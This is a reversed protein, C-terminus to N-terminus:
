IYVHTRSDLTASSTDYSITVSASNGNIDFTGAATNTGMSTLSNGINLADLLDRLNQLQDNTPSSLLEGRFDVPGSGSGNPAQYVGIFITGPAAPNFYYPDSNGVAFTVSGSSGDSNSWKM